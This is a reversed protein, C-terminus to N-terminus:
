LFVRILHYVAYAVGGVFCCASIGWVWWLMRRLRHMQMNSYTEYRVIPQPHEMAEDLTTKVLDVLQQWYHRREGEGARQGAYKVWDATTFLRAFRELPGNDMRERLTDVIEQTTKEMATIAYREELYLRAIDTLRVFFQKDSEQSDSSTQAEPQLTELAALAKAAPPTPPIITVRRKVPKHGTLRVSALLFIMLFLWPLLAWGVTDFRWEFPEDQPPAADYFHESKEEPIDLTNVKLGLKDRSVFAKGDVEVTMPPLAYLASDFSTLVYRKVWQLRQGGDLAVTDIRNGRVVEVGTMLTDAAGYEPFVVHAKKDATVSLTLTTQEGVWIESRELRSGVTVQAYSQLVCFLLLLSLWRKGGVHMGGSLLARPRDTKRNKM